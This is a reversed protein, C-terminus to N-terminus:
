VQLILNIVNICLISLPILQGEVIENIAVQWNAFKM